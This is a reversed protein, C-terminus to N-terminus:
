FAFREPTTMPPILDRAKLVVLTLHAVVDQSDHEH